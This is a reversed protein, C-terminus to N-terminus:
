PIPQHDLYRCKVCQSKIKKATLNAKATWYGMLRFQSVTDSIGGHKKQHAKLMLLYTLRHSNPLLAPPQKDWTFPTFEKMRLGVRWVSDTDLFPGLRAYRGEVKIELHVKGM